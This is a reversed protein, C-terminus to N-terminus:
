MIYHQLLMSDQSGPCLGDKFLEDVWTLDIRFSRGGDGDWRRPYQVAVAAQRPVDHRM